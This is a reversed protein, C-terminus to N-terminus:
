GWSRYIVPKPWKKTGLWWCDQGKATDGSQDPKQQGGGMEQRRGTQQECIPYGSFLKNTKKKKLYIEAADPGEKWSAKQNNLGCALDKQQGCPGPFAAQPHVVCGQPRDKVQAEQGTQQPWDKDIVKTTNPNGESTM